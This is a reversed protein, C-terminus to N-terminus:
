NRNSQVAKKFKMKWNSTYTPRRNRMALMRGTTGGNVSKGKAARLWHHSQLPCYLRARPGLPDEACHAGLLREQKDKENCSQAVAKM